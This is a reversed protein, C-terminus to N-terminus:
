TRRRCGPNVVLMNPVRAILTIPVFDKVPDYRLNKYLSANIAHTSITGGMITYGDAPSKATFEAGM